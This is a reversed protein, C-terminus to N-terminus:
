SMYSERGVGLGYVFLTVSLTSVEYSVEFEKAVAGLGPTIVASAFTVAFCIGGVIMTIAWKRAKSWNKPNAPDNDYFAVLKYKQSTGDPMVVVKPVFGAENEDTFEQM